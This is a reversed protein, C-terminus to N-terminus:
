KVKVFQKTTVKNAYAVRIVYHGSDLYNIDIETEAVFSEFVRKGLLDYISININGLSSEDYLLFLSENALTPWISVVDDENKTRVLIMHSLEFGGDFDIQKLRYYNAGPPAADDIYSYKQNETTTGRGEVFALTEWDMEVGSARHIEFGINDTESATEWNLEVANDSTLMGRFSILEVPMAMGDCPPNPCGPPEGFTNGVNTMGANACTILCDFMIPLCWFGGGGDQCCCFQGSVPANLLFIFLITAIFGKCRQLIKKM